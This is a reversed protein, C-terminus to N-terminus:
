FLAETEGPEAVLVYMDQRNTHFHQDCKVTDILYGERRLDWVRAAVRPMRLTLFVTSCVGDHNIRSAQLLNLIRDKQSM